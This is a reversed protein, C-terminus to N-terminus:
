RLNSLGFSHSSSVQRWKPGEHCSPEVLPWAASGHTLRLSEVAELEAPKTRPSSFPDPTPLLRCPQLGAPALGATDSARIPCSAIGSSLTPLGSLEAHRLRGPQGLPKSGKRHACGPPRALTPAQVHTFSQLRSIVREALTAKGLNNRTGLTDVRVRPQYGEPLFPCVCRPSAAHYPDLSRRMSQLSLTPFTSIGAPASPLRCLGAACPKGVSATTLSSSQRM